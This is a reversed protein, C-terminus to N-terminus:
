ILQPRGPDVSAVNADSSATVANTVHSVPAAVVPAAAGEATGTQAAAMGSAYQLLQQVALNM